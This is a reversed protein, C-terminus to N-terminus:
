NKLECLDIRPLGVGDALGAAQVRLGEAQVLVGGNADASRPVLPPPGSAVVCGNGAAVMVADDVVTRSNGDAM